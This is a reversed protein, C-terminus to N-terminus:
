NQFEIPDYSVILGYDKRDRSMWYSVERGEQEPYEWPFGDDKYNFYRTYILFGRKTKKFLIPDGGFPDAFVLDAPLTTPVDGHSPFRSILNVAVKTAQYRFQISQYVQAFLKRSVVADAMEYSRDDQDDLEDPFRQLKSWSGPENRVVGEMLPLVDVIMEWYRAELAAATHPGTRRHRDFQKDTREEWVKIGKEVLPSFSAGPFDPGTVKEDLLDDIENPKASRFLQFYIQTGRAEASMIQKIPPWSPIDGAIAVLSRIIDKEKRNRVAARVLAHNTRSAVASQRLAPMISPEELLAWSLANMAAGIRLVAEADGDDAAGVLGVMLAKGLQGSLSFCDDNWGIRDEAPQHEFHLDAILADVTEFWERDQSYLDHYTLSSGYPDNWFDKIHQPVSDAAKKWLSLDVNRVTGTEKRYEEWTLTGFTKEARSKALPLGKAARKYDPHEGTTLYAGFLFSVAVLALTAWLWKRRKSKM